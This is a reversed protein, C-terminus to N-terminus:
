QRETAAAMGPRDGAQFPTKFVLLLAPTSASADKDEGENFIELFGKEHVPGAFLSDASSVVSGSEQPLPEDWAASIAHQRLDEVRVTQSMSIVISSLNTVQLADSIIVERTVYNNLSRNRRTQCMTQHTLLFDAIEGIIVINSVTTDPSDAVKGTHQTTVTLDICDQTWKTRRLPEANHELHRRQENIVM